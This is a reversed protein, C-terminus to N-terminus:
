VEMNVLKRMWAIGIFYAILGVGIIAWGVPQILMPMIYEPRILIMYIVLLLPLLALIWASLRGEASLTRVQRRLRERERLTKGVNTLVEALNGGVRRNIRISMVVWHFDRSDMRQAVAELAEELPLGLRSELLARNIESGFPGSTERAVNDLAQPLSYGASLSGALMQMADPLADYFRTKRRRAQYSLYLWPVILGLAFALLAAVGNFGTLLTTVLGAVVAITTHVLVWESPRMSVDAEELKRALATTDRNAAVRDAFSVAKRVASSEGLVTSTAPRAESAPADSSRVEKLRRAIRGSTRHRPDVAGAALAFITTLSVFLAAIAAILIWDEDLIGSGTEPVVVPGFAETASPEPAPVIIAAASDTIQQDGVLATVTLDATGAEVGEPVQATVSLQSAVTRAASEFAATLTASNTATVVSGDGAEAFAALAKEQDGEGLSVADLVVGSESLATRAEEASGQSGRDKGDSLLVASRSGEDGLSEVALIVADNLTTRPPTPELRDLAAVVAARDVTPEVDIRASVDFSVLGARVDSPLSQLYTTAASKAIELKDFDAMSGSSDLVIMATRQVPAADEDTIPRATAPVEQGDLSVTVSAPDIRDGEAIGEAALAFSVEGPASSVGQIRGEPAAWAIGTGLVLTCAASLAAAHQWRRRATRAGSRM